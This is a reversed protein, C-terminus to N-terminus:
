LLMSTTEQSSSSSISDKSFSSMLEGFILATLFSLLFYSLGLGFFTSVLFPRAVDFSARRWNWFVNYIVSHRFEFESCDISILFLGGDFEFMLFVTSPLYVGAKLDCSSFCTNEFTSSSSCGWWVSTSIWVDLVQMESDFLVCHCDAVSSVTSLIILPEFIAWPKCWRLKQRPIM